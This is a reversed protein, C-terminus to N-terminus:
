RFRAKAFGSVRHLVVMGSYGFSTVDVLRNGFTNVGWELVEGLDMRDLEDNIAVWEKGSLSTPPMQGVSRLLKSYRRKSNKHGKRGGGRLLASTSPSSSRTALLWLASCSALGLLISKIRVGRRNAGRLHRYAHATNGFDFARRGPPSVM